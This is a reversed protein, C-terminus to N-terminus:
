QCKQFTKPSKWSNTFCCCRPIGSHYCLSLFTAYTANKSLSLRYFIRCLLYCRCFPSFAYIFGPFRAHISLVLKKGHFFGFFGRFFIWPRVFPERFTELLYCHFIQPTKLCNKDLKECVNSAFSKFVSTCCFDFFFMDIKM